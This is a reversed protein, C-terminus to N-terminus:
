EPPAPASGPPGPQDSLQQPAAAHTHAPHRLKQLDRRIQRRHRWLVFTMSPIGCLIWAVINGGAGWTGPGFLLNLLHSM